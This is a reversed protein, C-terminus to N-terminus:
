KFNTLQLYNNQLSIQKTKIKVFFCSSLNKTLYKTLTISRLSKFLIVAELKAMTKPGFRRQDLLLCAVSLEIVLM